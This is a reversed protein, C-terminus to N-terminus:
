TSGPAILVDISESQTSERSSNSGNCGTLLALSVLLLAIVATNM